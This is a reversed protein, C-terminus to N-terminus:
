PSFHSRHGVSQEKADDMLHFVGDATYDANHVFFRGDNGAAFKGTNTVGILHDGKVQIIFTFDKNMDFIEKLRSEKLSVDYYDNMNDVGVIRIGECDKLLRKCLNSGIFGASGTVLITKENLM